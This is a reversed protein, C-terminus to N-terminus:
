EDGVDSGFFVIDNVRTGWLNIVDTPYDFDNADDCYLPNGYNWNPERYHGDKIRMMVFVASYSGLLGVSGNNAAICYLMDYGGYLPNEEIMVGGGHSLGQVSYVEGGNKLDSFAFDDYLLRPSYGQNSLEGELSSFDSTLPIWRGNQRQLFILISSKRDAFNYEYEVAIEDEQKGDVNYFSCRAFILGDYPMMTDKFDLHTNLVYKSKTNFLINWFSREKREFVCISSGTYNEGLESVYNGCVVLVTDNSDVISDIRFQIDKNISNEIQKVLYNNLKDGLYEGSSNKYAVWLVSTSLVVLFISTFLSKIIEERWCVSLRNGKKSKNERYSQKSSDNIADQDNKEYIIIHYPKKLQSLDM